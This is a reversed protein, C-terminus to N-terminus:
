FFIKNRIAFSINYKLNDIEIILYHDHLLVIIKFLVYLYYILDSHALNHVIDFSIVSM